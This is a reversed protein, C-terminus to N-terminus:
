EEGGADGGPASSARCIGRKKAEKVFQLMEQAEPGWEQDAARALAQSVNLGSLLLLKFLRKLESRTDASFGVRRLGISNLGTVVNTRDAVIFPPIDKGFRTGGRVMCLRGVRMFQHFVTGGGLVAQDGIEVYGALLVNNAVVTRNGILCNHGFHAGTMVYNGDGVVTATDPATGRHITVYERFVNQNGIRVESHMQPDFAFDQPEVGIISGYGVLNESGLTTPGTVIARALIRCGDGITVDPGIIAYPGIEVDAGIRAGDHVIATSHIM